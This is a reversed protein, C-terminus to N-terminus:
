LATKIGAIRKIVFSKPGEQKWLAEVTPAFAFM